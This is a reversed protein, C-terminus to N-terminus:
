DTIVNNHTIFKNVHILTMYLISITSKWLLFNHWLPINQHFSLYIDSRKFNNLYLLLNSPIPISIIITYKVFFHSKVHWIYLTRTYSNKTGTLIKTKLIIKTRIKKKLSHCTSWFHPWQHSCYFGTCMSEPYVCTLSTLTVTQYRNSAYWKVVAPLKNAICEM